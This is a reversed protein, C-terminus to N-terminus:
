LVQLKAGPPLSRGEVHLQTMNKVLMGWLFGNPVIFIYPKQRGKVSVTIGDIAIDLATIKDLDVDASRQPGNFILSKPTIALEGQATERVVKRSRPSSQGLYIPMGAIKVRTGLYQRIQESSVEMLRANCSALVPCDPRSIIRDTQSSPFMGQANVTEFYNLAEQVISDRATAARDTKGSWHWLGWAILGSIAAPWLMIISDRGKEDFLGVVMMILQLAASFGFLTALARLIFKMANNLM